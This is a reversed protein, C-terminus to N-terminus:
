HSAKTTTSTPLNSWIPLQKVQQLTLDLYTQDQEEIPTKGFYGKSGQHEHPGSTLAIYRGERRARNFPSGVTWRWRSPFVVAGIKTIRDHQGQMHYIRQAEAFGETGEFFGGISIVTIKANPLWQDLYPTIGAAVQAGGSSGILILSLPQQRTQISQKANMRDITATAIAWNYTPGYRDDASLAMQWFNRINILVQGMWGESEQATQWFDAFPHDKVLTRQRVSYPFVDPVAVCTPNAATLRTLFEVEGPSLDGGGTNGVGPLFIIYCSRKVANKARASNNSLGRDPFDDAEPKLEEIELDLWWILTGVPALTGWILFLFAVLGLLSFTESGLRSLIRKIFM